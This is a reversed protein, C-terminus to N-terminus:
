PRWCTCSGREAESLLTLAQETADIARQYRRMMGIAYAEAELWAMFEETDQQLDALTALDFLAAGARLHNRLASVLSM